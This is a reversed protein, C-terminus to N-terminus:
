ARPEWYYMGNRRSNMRWQRPTFGTAKKFTKVLNSQDLGVRIAILKLSFETNELMEKAKEIRVATQFDYITCNHLQKFGVRLKSENTGVMQALDQHTFHNFYREELVAKVMHLKEVDEITLNISPM